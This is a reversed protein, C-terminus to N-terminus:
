GKIDIGRVKEKERETYRRYTVNGFGVASKM